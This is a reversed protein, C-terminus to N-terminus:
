RFHDDDASGNGSTPGAQLAALLVMKMVERDFASEDKRVYKPLLGAEVAKDIAAQLMADTLEM